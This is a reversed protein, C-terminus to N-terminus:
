MVQSPSGRGIGLRFERAGADQRGYAAEPEAGAASSEPRPVPMEQIPWAAHLRGIKERGLGARM